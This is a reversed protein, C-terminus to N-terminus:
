TANTVVIPSGDAIVYRCFSQERPVETVQAGRSSKYWQRHADVFSVIAVPVDFLKRTLRTIRDFAEEAPSDLIDLEHLANLREAEEGPALVPAHLDAGHLDDHRLDERPIGPRRAPLTM